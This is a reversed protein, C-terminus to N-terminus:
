IEWNGSVNNEVSRWLQCSLPSISEDMSTLTTRFPASVRWCILYLLPQEKVTINLQPGEVSSVSLGGFRLLYCVPSEKENSTCFLHEWDDPLKRGFPSELAWAGERRHRQWSWCTAEVAAMVPFFSSPYSLKIPQAQSHIQWRWGYELPKFSLCAQPLPHQAIHHPQTDLSFHVKHVVLLTQWLDGRQARFIQKERGLICFVSEREIGAM